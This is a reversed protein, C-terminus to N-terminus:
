IKCGECDSEDEHTPQASIKEANSEEVADFDVNDLDFAPASEDKTGLINVGAIQVM